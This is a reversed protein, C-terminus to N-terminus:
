NYYISIPAGNENVNAKPGSTPVGPYTYGTRGFLQVGSDRWIRNEELVIDAGNALNADYFNIAAHGGSVWSKKMSFPARNVMAGAQSTDVGNTGRVRAIGAYSTEANSWQNLYTARRANMTAQTQAYTAGGVAAAFPNTESGSGPTGTGVFDSAWAFLAAGFITTRMGDVGGATQVTDIHVQANTSYNTIWWALASFFSGQANLLFNAPASGIPSGGVANLRQVGQFADSGGMHVSKYTNINRGKLATINKQARNHFESNSITVEYGAGAGAGANLARVHYDVNQVNSSLLVGACSELEVKARIDVHNNGFWYGELVGSGPVNADVITVVGNTPMGPWPELDTFLTGEPLGVNKAGDLGITDEYWPQTEGLDFPSPPPPITGGPAGRHMEVLSGNVRRLVQGQGTM